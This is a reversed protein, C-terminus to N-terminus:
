KKKIEKTTLLLKCNAHNTKNINILLILLTYLTFFIAKSESM